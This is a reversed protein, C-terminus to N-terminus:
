SDRSTDTARIDGVSVLLLRKVEETSPQRGELGIFSPPDRKIDMAAMVYAASKPPFAYALELVAEDVKRDFETNRRASLFRQAAELSPAGHSGSLYARAEDVTVGFARAIGTLSKLGSTGIRGKEISIWNARDIHGESRAVLKDHSLGSAKRLFFLRDGEPTVGAPSGRAVMLM